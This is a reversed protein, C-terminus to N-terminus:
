SVQFSEGHLRRSFYSQEVCALYVPDVRLPVIYAHVHQPFFMQYASSDALHLLPKVGFLEGADMARDDDIDIANLFQLREEITLVGDFEVVSRLKGQAACISFLQKGEQVWGLTIEAADQQM